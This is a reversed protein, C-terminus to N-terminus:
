NSFPGGGIAMAFSLLIKPIIENPSLAIAAKLGFGYIPLHLHAQRNALVPSPEEVCNSAGVKGADRRL